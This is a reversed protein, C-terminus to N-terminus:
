ESDPVFHLIKPPEEKNNLKELLSAATGRALNGKPLDKVLKELQEKATEVDGTNWTLWASGMLVYEREFAEPQSSLFNEVREPLLIVKGDGYDTMTRANVGNYIPSYKEFDYGTIPPKSKRYGWPVWVKTKPWRAFVTGSKDFAKVEFLYFNGPELKLEGVGM